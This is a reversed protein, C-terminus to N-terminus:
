AESVAEKQVKGHSHEKTTPAAPPKPGLGTRVDLMSDVNLIRAGNTPDAGLIPTGVTMLVAVASGKPGVVEFAQAPYLTYGWERTFHLIRDASAILYSVGPYGYYGIVEEIQPYHDFSKTTDNVVPQGFAL